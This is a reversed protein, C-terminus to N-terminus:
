ELTPIACVTGSVLGVIASYPKIQFRPLRNSIAVKERQGRRKIRSRSFTPDVCEVGQLTLSAWILKLQRSGESSFRLLLQEERCLLARQSEVLRATELKTTPEQRRRLGTATGM